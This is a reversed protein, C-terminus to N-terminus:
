SFYAVVRQREDESYAENMARNIDVMKTVEKRTKVSASIKLLNVMYTFAKIHDSPITMFETFRFAYHEHFVGDKFERFYDILLDMCEKFMEDNRVVNQFIRFLAAQAASGQDDSILKGPKMAEIYNNMSTVIFQERGSGKTMITEIKKEFSSKAPASVASTQQKIATVTEESAQKGAPASSSDVVVGSVVTDKQQETVQQTVQPQEVQTAQSEATTVEADTKPSDMQTGKQKALKPNTM